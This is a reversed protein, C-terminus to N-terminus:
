KHGSITSNLILKTDLLAATPSAMDHPYEIKDVVVTM